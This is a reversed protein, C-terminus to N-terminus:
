KNKDNQEEEEKKLEFPAKLNHVAKYDKGKSRFEEWVRSRLDSPLYWLVEATSFADSLSEFSPLDEENPVLERVGIAYRLLTQYALHTCVEYLLGTHKLQEFLDHIIDVPAKGNASAIDKSAEAFQKIIEQIAQRDKENGRADAREEMLHLVPSIIFPMINALDRDPNYWPGGTNKKRILTPM